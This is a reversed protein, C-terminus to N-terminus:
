KNYIFLYINILYLKLVSLDGFCWWFVLLVVGFCRCMVLFPCLGLCSRSMVLVLGLCCWFLVSIDGFFSLSLVSVRGLCSRPCSNKLRSADDTSM